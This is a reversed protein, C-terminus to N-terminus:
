IPDSGSAFRFHRDGIRVKDGDRLRHRQVRQDNVFCGNTSSVNVLTVLRRAVLLRAHDRSVANSALCVDNGRARGITVVDRSLAIPAEAQDMPILQPVGDRRPSRQPQATPLPEQTATPPLTASCEAAPLPIELTSSLEAGRGPTGAAALERRLSELRADRSRLQQQVIEYDRTLRKLEARLAAIELAQDAFDQVSPDGYAPRRTAHRDPPSHDAFAKFDLEISVTAGDDNPNAAAHM